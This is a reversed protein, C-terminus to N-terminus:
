IEKGILDSPVTGDKDRLHDYLKQKQEDGLLLSLMKPVLLPNEDVESMVELLEFNNIRNDTLEYVFGSKTKGKKM